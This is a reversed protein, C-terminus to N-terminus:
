REGPCHCWLHHPWRPRKGPDPESGHAALGQAGAGVWYVSVCVCLWVCACTCARACARAHVCVCWKTFFPSCAPSSWQQVSAHLMSVCSSVCEVIIGVCINAAVLALMGGQMGAQRGAHRSPTRPVRPTAHLNLSLLSNGAIREGQCVHRRCPPFAAPKCVAAAAPVRHDYVARPEGRTAHM